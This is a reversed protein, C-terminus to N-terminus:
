CRTYTRDSVADPSSILAPPWATTKVVLTLTRLFVLGTSCSLSPSKPLKFISALTPINPVEPLRPLEESLFTAPALQQPKTGVIGRKPRGM